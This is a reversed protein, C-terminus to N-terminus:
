LVRDQEPYRIPHGADHLSFTVQQSFKAKEIVKLTMLHRANHNQPSLRCLAYTTTIVFRTKM